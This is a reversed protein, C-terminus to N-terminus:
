EGSLRVCKKHRAVWIENKLNEGNKSKCNLNQANYFQFVIERVIHGAGNRLPEFTASTLKGTFVL